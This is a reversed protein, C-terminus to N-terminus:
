NSLVKKFHHKNGWWRGFRNLIDLYQEEVRSVPFCSKQLTVMKGTWDFFFSLDFMPLTLNWDLQIFRCNKWDSGILCTGERVSVYCRFISPQFVIPEKYPKPRFQGVGFPAFCWPVLHGTGFNTSVAPWRLNEVDDISSPPFILNIRHSHQNSIHWPFWQVLFSKVM